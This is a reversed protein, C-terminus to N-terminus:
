LKGRLKRVVTPNVVMCINTFVEGSLGNSKVDFKGVGDVVDLCLNLVLFPPLKLAAGKSTSEGEDTDRRVPLPKDEGAFLKLIAAGQGVVINLCLRGKM